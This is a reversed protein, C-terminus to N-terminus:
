GAPIECRLEDLTMSSGGEQEASTRLLQYYEDSLTIMQTQVDIDVYGMNAIQLAGSLQERNRQVQEFLLRSQLAIAVQQALASMPRKEQETFTHPEESILSLTGALQGGVWLPLSALSGIGIARFSEDTADVFTPETLSFSQFQGAYSEAGFHTGVPVPQPGHGSYWNARVESSEIEGKADHNFVLLLARNMDPIHAEEAAM